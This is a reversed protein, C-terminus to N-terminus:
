PSTPQDAPRPRELSGSRRGQKRVLAVETIAAWRDVSRIMDIVTLIAIPVATLAEMEAGTPGEERVTAEIVVGLPSEDLHLDVDVHRLALPHCLPILEATRKAAMIGALRATDLDSGNSVANASILQLAETTCTVFGRATASRKSVAKESVDVM